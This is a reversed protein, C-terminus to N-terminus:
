SAGGEASLAPVAADECKAAYRVLVDIVLDANADTGIGNTFYKLLKRVDPVGLEDAVPRLLRVSRMLLDAMDRYYESWSNCCGNNFRDYYLCSGCRLLEGHPTEAEDSAPVLADWLREYDAQFRGEKSWYAPEAEPTDADASARYLVYGMMLNDMDLRLGFYEMSLALLERADRRSEAELAYVARGEMGRGSYGDHQECDVGSEGALHMLSDRERETM